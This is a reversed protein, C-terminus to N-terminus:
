SELDEADYVWEGADFMVVEDNNDIVYIDM